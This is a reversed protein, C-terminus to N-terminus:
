AFVAKPAEDRRRWYRLRARPAFTWALWGGIVFSAAIVATLLVPAWAMPALALVAWAGLGFAVASFQMFLLVAIWARPRM